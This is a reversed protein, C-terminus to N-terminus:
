LRLTMYAQDVMKIDGILDPASEIIATFRGLRATASFKDARRRHVSSANFKKAQMKM